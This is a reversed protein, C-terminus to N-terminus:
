SGPGDGTPLGDFLSDELRTDHAGVEFFDFGIAFGGTKAGDAFARLADPVGKPFTQVDVRTGVM